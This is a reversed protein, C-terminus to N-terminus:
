HDLKQYLQQEQGEPQEPLQQFEYKPLSPVPASRVDAAAATVVIGRVM